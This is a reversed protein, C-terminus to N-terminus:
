SPSLWALLRDRWPALTLAPLRPMAAIRRLPETFSLPGYQTAPDGFPLWPPPAAFGDSWAPERRREQSGRRLTWLAACAALTLLAAVAVPAYGPAEVAPRLTLSLPGPLLALGPLVGALATLAALAGLWWRVLRPPEEAAATRPTRPRGLFVAGFLRVAGIAAVGVSWALLLAVAAILWQLAFGGARAAGLLAQFLLWFAAFGLGPPLMSVAFLGVLCSWGTRPMCHILGGLRVLHRTGAGQEVAEACRLLLTRCLAHCVISLWTAHVALTAIAPLDVARAMLAVGIGIAALGLQHLSLISLVDHVTDAVAARLSGAVAGAAGLLLLPVCWAMPQMPGCLDLLVRVLLYAALLGNARALLLAAILTLLLIATAHGGDPPAARIAAFDSSGALAFLAILCALCSWCGWGRGRLPPSNPHPHGLGVLAVAVGVVLLFGDTAVLALVTGAFAVPAVEITVAALLLFSAGLPDLGLPVALALLAVLGAIGACGLTVLTRRSESM